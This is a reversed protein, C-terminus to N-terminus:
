KTKLLVILDNPKAFSLDRRALEELLDPDIGDPRLLTNRKELAAREAVLRNREATLSWIEEKLAKGAEIGYNGHQAHFAFYAILAAAVCYLGVIQFFRSLRTRTVM